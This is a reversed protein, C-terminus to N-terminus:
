MGPETRAVLRPANEGPVPVENRTARVPPALVCAGVGALLVEPVSGVEFPQELRRSVLCDDLQILLRKRPIPGVGLAPQVADVRRVAYRLLEVSVVDADGQWPAFLHRVVPWHRESAGERVVSSEPPAPERHFRGLIRSPQRQDHVRKM